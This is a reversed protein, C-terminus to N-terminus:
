RHYQLMWEYINKGDERYDPNTARTWCDHHLRAEGVEFSTFKPAIIPNLSNFVEIYRKAESYYWAQDDKNHFQWVPLLARSMSSCKAELNQDIQPMGGMATIAAVENPKFAAYDSLMRGGLSLGTFYIRTTDVRFNAKVYQMLAQIETNGIKKVFQPAIVIFSFKEDGVTFSPPFRKEDLLKPVGDELVQIIDTSTGDGYQGGGHFSILLPYTENSEFYRAPLAKYYGQINTSVPYTVPSVVAPETEELKPVEPLPSPHPEPSGGGATPLVSKRCSSFSGALVSVLLLLALARRM